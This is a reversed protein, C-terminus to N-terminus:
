SKSKKYENVDWLPKGEKIASTLDRLANLAEEQKDFIAIIELDVRPYGGTKNIYADLRHKNRDPYIQIGRFHALNLIENDRETVIFM